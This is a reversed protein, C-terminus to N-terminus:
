KKVDYDGLLYSRIHNMSGSLLENDNEDYLVYDTESADYYTECDDSEPYDSLLQDDLPITFYQAVNMVREQITWNNKQLVDKLKQLKSSM